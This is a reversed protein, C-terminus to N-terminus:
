PLIENYSDYYDDYDEANKRFALNHAEVFDLDEETAHIIAAMAEHGVSYFWCQNGKFFALDQPGKKATWENMGNVCKLIEKAELTNKYFVIRYETNSCQMGLTGPWSPNSRSKVKYPELKKKIEKQFKTYGKGYYNIYVLMFYDTKSFAYDLFAIYVQGKCRTMMKDNEFFIIKEMIDGTIGFIVKTRV